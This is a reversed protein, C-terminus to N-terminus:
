SSTQTVNWTWGRPDRHTLALDYFARRTANTKRAIICTHEELTIARKEKFRFDPWLKKPIVPVPLWNM